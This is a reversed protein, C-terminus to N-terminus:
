MFIVFFSNDLVLMLPSVRSRSQYALALLINSPEAHSVYLINCQFIFCSPFRHTSVDQGIGVMGIIHGHENRRTTANLLIELRVGGKTM